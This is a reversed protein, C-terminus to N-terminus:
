ESVRETFCDDTPMGRLYRYYFVNRHVKLYKRAFEGLPYTEGEYEIYRTNRKNNAQETRTVWRCNSPEYRGYVDVRDLTLGEKYGNEKAWKFFQKNDHWEECVTIGRGGYYKYTPDNEKECRQKMKTWISYLKHHSLGHKERYPRKRKLAERNYCGCSKSQGSRLMYGTLVRETGCECRCLYQVNRSPSREPVEKIVSWRGFTQGTIDKKM